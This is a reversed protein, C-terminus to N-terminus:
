GKTQIRIWVGKSKIYRGGRPGLYVMYTRGRIRMRDNTKVKRAVKRGSGVFHSSPPPSDSLARAAAVNANTPTDLIFHIPMEHGDFRIDVGEDTFLIIGQARKPIAHQPLIMERFFNGITHWRWPSSGTWLRAPSPSVEYVREYRSTM